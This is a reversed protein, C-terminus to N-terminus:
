GTKLEIAQNMQAFVDNMKNSHYENSQNTAYLHNLFDNMIINSVSLMPDIDVPTFIAKEEFAAVKLHSAVANHDANTSILLPMIELDEAPIGTNLIATAFLRKIQEIDQGFLYCAFEDTDANPYKDADKIYMFVYVIFSNNHSM